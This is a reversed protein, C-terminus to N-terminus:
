INLNLLFNMYDAVNAAVYYVGCREAMEPDYRFAPGGAIIRTQPPIREGVYALDAESDMQLVTLGLFAPQEMLCAAVIRDPPQLLGLPKVQLGIVDSFLQIIDIGQGIGDDLTATLMLPTTPWIGTVGNQAKWQNLEAAAQTLKERSPLGHSLWRHCHSELANRLGIM